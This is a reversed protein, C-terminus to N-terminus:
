DTNCDAGIGSTEQTDGAQPAGWPEVQAVCGQAGPSIRSSALRVGVREGALFSLGIAAVIAAMLLPQPVRHVTLATV